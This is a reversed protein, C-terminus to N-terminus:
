RLKLWRYITSRHVGFVAAARSVSDGSDALVRRVAEGKGQQLLHRPSTASTPEAIQGFELLRRASVLTRPCLVHLREVISRLQRINGPWRYAKLM